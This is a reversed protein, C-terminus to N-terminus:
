VASAIHFARALSGTLACENRETAKLDEYISKCGYSYLLEFAICTLTDISIKIDYRAGNWCGLM